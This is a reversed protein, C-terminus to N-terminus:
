ARRKLCTESASRWLRVQLLPQLCIVEHDAFIAGRPVDLAQWTILLNRDGPAGGFAYDLFAAGHNCFRSAELLSSRAARYMGDLSRVM